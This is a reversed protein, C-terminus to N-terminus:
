GGRGSGGGVEVDDTRLGTREGGAVSVTLETGPTGVVAHAARGIGAARRAAAPPDVAGLRRARRLFTHVRPRADAARVGAHRTEGGRAAPGAAGTGANVRVHAACRVRIAASDAVAALRDRVTEEPRRERDRVWRDGSERAAV